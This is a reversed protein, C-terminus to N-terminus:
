NNPRCCCECSGGFREPASSGGAAPFILMKKVHTEVASFGDGIFLFCVGRKHLELVYLIKFIPFLVKNYETGTFQQIFACLAETELAAENGQTLKARYSQFLSSYLTFM